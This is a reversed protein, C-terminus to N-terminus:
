QAPPLKPGTDAPARAAGAPAPATDAPMECGGVTADAADVYQSDAAETVPEAATEDLTVAGAYTSVSWRGDAKQVMLYAQAEHGAYQDPLSVSLRKERRYVPASLFGSGLAPVYLYLYVHDYAGGGGKGFSVTLVNDATWEMAGAEVPMVDGESLRLTAYDVQLRGEAFGFAHQNRSVFLNYATMGAERAAERMTLGVAWRMRAALQVEQKFMERHATQAATRPNSVFRQHSRVCWKGNWLYGVAPGLRGSFGGLYGM